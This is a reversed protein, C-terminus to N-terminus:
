VRSSAHSALLPIKERRELASDRRQLLRLAFHCKFTPLTGGLSVRLQARRRFRRRCGDCRIVRAVPPQLRCVIEFRQDSAVAREYERRDGREGGDPRKEAPR